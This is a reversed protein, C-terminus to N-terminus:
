PTEKTKKEFVAHLCELDKPHARAWAVQEEYPRLASLNAGGARKVRWIREQLPLFYEDWWTCPPWDMREQLVFGADEFAPLYTEFWTQAECIVLPSGDTLLSRCAALAAPLKILHLVGEAWLLDFPALHEPADLLSLKNVLVRESLGEQVLRARLRDLALGDVDIGVLPGASLRALELTITGAGCGIEM